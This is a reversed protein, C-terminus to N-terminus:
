IERLNISAWSMLIINAVGERVVGIKSWDGVGAQKRAPTM